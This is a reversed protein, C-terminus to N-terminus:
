AAWPPVMETGDVTARAGAPLIVVAEFTGPGPNSIAFECGAPVILAGGAEVRDHSDAFTAVAGGSLAVFIEERDLTHPPSAHGADLRLHWASTEVAGRSPSALGVVHTGGADFRPAASDTIVPM